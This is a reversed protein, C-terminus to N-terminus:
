LCGPDLGLVAANVVVVGRANAPIYFYSYKNIRVISNATNHM